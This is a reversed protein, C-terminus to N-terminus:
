DHFLGPDFVNINPHYSESSKTFPLSQQSSLLLQVKNSESYSFIRAISSPIFYLCYFRVADFIKSEALIRISFLSHSVPATSLMLNLDYSKHLLGWKFFLRLFVSRLKLIQVDAIPHTKGLLTMKRKHLFFHISTADSKPLFSVNFACLKGSGSIQKDLHWFWMKTLRTLPM